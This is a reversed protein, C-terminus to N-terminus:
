NLYRKIRVIVLNVSLLSEDLLQSRFSLSFLKKNSTLTIYHNPGGFHLRLESNVNIVPTLLLTFDKHM